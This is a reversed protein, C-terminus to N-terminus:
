KENNIIDNYVELYENVINDWSLKDKIYKKGREVYLNSKEPNELFFKMADKLQVYNEYDVVLGSNSELILDGCGTNKTVIVPIGCMIAEFPVLGFIEFSAPYVLIDSNIYASLDPIFGVFYVFKSLNLDEILIKLQTKYGEDPGAIILVTNKYDKVLLSFSRILFDLGKIKHIRGLFLIVKKGDLDIYNIKNTRIELNTYKNLSIGNSIIKIKDKPVNSDIYQYYELNSVAIVINSKELLSKGFFQDYFVKLWKKEVIQLLSGHAQLIFPIKYLQCYKLLVNNQYSRFNHMHVIDYYLLNNKVWKKMSPSYLFLKLNLKCHFKFIRIGLAELESAFDKDFEFDSTILSVILGKKIQYKGLECPVIVSGGRKPTLFPLIHLIKM